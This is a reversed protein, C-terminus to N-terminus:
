STRLDTHRFAGGVYLLSDDAFAASTYALWDGFNLSAKHRGRGYRLFADTACRWEIEGFSLNDLDIAQIM